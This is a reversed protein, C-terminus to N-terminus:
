CRAWRRSMPAFRAESGENPGSDMTPLHVDIMQVAAFKELVSRPTLGPALAHLRRALTIERSSVAGSVFSSYINEAPRFDPDQGDLCIERYVQMGSFGREVNLVAAEGAASRDGRDAPKSTGLAPGLRKLPSTYAVETVVSSTPQAQPM